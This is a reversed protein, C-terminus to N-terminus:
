LTKRGELARKLQEVSKELKSLYQKLSHENDPEFNLKLGVLSKEIKKMNDLVRTGENESLYDDIEQLDKKDLSFWGGRILKSAYKKHLRKEHLSNKQIRYVRFLQLDIPSHADIVAFRRHIDSSKGIMFGIESYILYLFSKMVLLYSHM